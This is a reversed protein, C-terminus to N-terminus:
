ILSLGETNAMTDHEEDGSDPEETDNDPEEDPFVDHMNEDDSNESSDRMEADPEDELLKNINAEIVPERETEHETGPPLRSLM